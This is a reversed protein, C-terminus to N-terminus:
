LVAIANAPTAVAGPLNLPVSVFLFDWRGQEECRHALQRFDFLEGMPMGLLPLLRRHLSGTAPDGPSAEVAPNDCALAAVQQDWLFRATSEAASLGAFTPRRGLAQRGPTDLALYRETWGLRVCLIDGPSLPSGQADAVEALQNASIELPQFPDLERGQAREHRVMDLLVGRGVFGHTVWAGIGLEDSQPTPEDTRGGYFGHERCRVHRLGDWQSSAQTNLRDLRDERNNRGTQVIEHSLADRGYLPPDPETLPLVLNVVLGDRVGHAAERVRASTLHNLTGLEDQPGFVGWSHRLGQDPLQPLADFTVHGTM